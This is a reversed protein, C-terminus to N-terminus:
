ATTLLKSINGWEGGGDSGKKKEKEFHDEFDRQRGM